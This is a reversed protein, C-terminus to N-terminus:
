AVAPDMPMPPGGDDNRREEESPFVPPPTFPAGPGPELMSGLLPYRGALFYTAYAELLMTIYGLTGFQFWFMATLFLIYLAVGAVVGLIHGATGLTAIVIGGIVAVIIGVIGIPIMLVIMAIYQVMFGVVFLILKLVLFLLCQLPDALFVSSGRSLAATLPIDELIYFPLVFDEFATSFLKILLVAAFISGELGIMQSLFSQFIAPDPPQGPTFRPMDGMMQTLSAFTKWLFPALALSMVTGLLSKFGVVPWVRSGYRRWMPAVFAARTVVMEFNVFQMRVGLYFFCFFLLTGLVFAVTILPAALAMNFRSHPLFILLLPMPVFFAGIMGIYQSAALKWSRGLRFPQFLMEHSRTFAPTIADIPNLPQM